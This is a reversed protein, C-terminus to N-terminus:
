TRNERLSVRFPWKSRTSQQGQLCFLRSFLRQQALVMGHHLVNCSCTFNLHKDHLARRRPTANGCVHSTHPRDFTAKTGKRSEPSTPCCSIESSALLSVRRGKGVHNQVDARGTCTMESGWSGFAAAVRRPLRAAQWAGTFFFFFFSLRDIINDDMMPPKRSGAKRIM